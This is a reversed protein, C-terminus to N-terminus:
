AWGLVIIGINEVSHYALLRKLDHQALAFLVGLIGSVAGIIVLTWGWWSQSGGLFCCCGCCAMSAGAQDHRWENSRLCALPAAPHAEPLWVHFPVLGAKVGFGILGLVFIVSALRGEGWSSTSNWRASPDLLSSCLWCFPSASIHRYLISGDRVVLKEKKTIMFWLSFSSLSMLEWSFLFVFGNRAALVLFMSAIFLNTCVGLTPSSRGRRQRSSVWTRLDRSPRQNGRGANHFHRSLPDLGIHFSGLPLTWPLILDLRRGLLVQVSAGVILIAGVVATIPGVLQSSRNRVFLSWGAGIVYIVIGALFLYM